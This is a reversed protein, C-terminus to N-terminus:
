KRTEAPAKLMREARLRQEAAWGAAKENGSARYLPELQACAARVHPLDNDRKSFALAKEAPPIIQDAPAGTRELLSAYHFYTRGAGEQPYVQLDALRVAEKAAALAKGIKQTRAYAISLNHLNSCSEERFQLGHAEIWNQLEERTTIEREWDGAIGYSAALNNRIEIELAPTDRCLGAARELVETARLAGTRGATEALYLWCCGLHSYLQALRQRSANQGEEWHIAEETRAIARRYRHLGALCKGMLGLVDGRSPPERGAAEPLAPLLPELIALAPEYERNRALTVARNYRGLLGASEPCDYTNMLYDMLTKRAERYDRYRGRKLARSVSSQQVHNKEAVLLQEGLLDMDMAYQRQAASWDETLGNLLRCLAHLLPEDDRRTRIAVPFGRWGERRLLEVGERAYHYAPGDDGLAQARNVPGTSIEGLGLGYRVLVRYEALGRGIYEIIELAPEAATLLGQFEDGLTVLFPSALYDSFQTNMEDLLLRLRQQVEERRRAPIDRSHILDGILACYM